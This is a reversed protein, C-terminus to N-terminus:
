KLYERFFEEAKGCDKQNQVARITLVSDGLPDVIGAAKFRLNEKHQSVIMRPVEKWECHEGDYAFGLSTRLFALHREYERLSGGFKELKIMKGDWDSRLPTDLEGRLTKSTLANELERYSYGSKFLLISPSQTKLRGDLSRLKPGWGPFHFRGKDDTVTEMVMMQGVPNGGEIGGKLQWHAVVIVGELPQNTEADVVWAEIPEAKYTFFGCSQLPTLMLLLLATRVFIHAM